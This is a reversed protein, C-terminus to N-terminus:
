AARAVGSANETNATNGPWLCKHGVYSPSPKRGAKGSEDATPVLRIWGKAELLAFPADVDSAKDFMSKKGRLKQQIQSKTFVTLIPRQSSIHALVRRAAVVVPDGDALSFVRKAHPILYRGIEIANAVDAASVSPGIAQYDQCDQSHKRALHLLGSIRAIAGTLKGGWSDTLEGFVVLTPELERAFAILLAQADPEFHLTPPELSTTAADKLSLYRLTPAPLDLLTGILSEFDLVVDRPVPATGHERTGVRSKPWFYLFRQPLGRSYFTENEVLKEIITPQCALVLTLLPYKITIAQADTARDVSFREGPHAKLVLEINHGKGYRGLGDVFGVGEPSMVLLRGDNVHMLSAMREPTVDEVVMRPKGYRELKDIEAQLEEADDDGDASKLQRRLDGVAEHYAAQDADERAYFPKAAAKILASKRDASSAIPTIYLNLPEVWGPQPEVQFRGACAASVAGLAVAAAIDPPIQLAVSQAEVWRRLTPPLTHAPFPPPVVEVGLPSPAAWPATDPADNFLDTSM